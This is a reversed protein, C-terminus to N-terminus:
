YEITPGVLEVPHGHDVDYFFKKENIDFISLEITDAVYPRYNPM